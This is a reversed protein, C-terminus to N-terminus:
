FFIMSQLKWHLKGRKRVMYFDTTTRLFLDTSSLFADSFIWMFNNNMIPNNNNVLVLVMFFTGNSSILHFLLEFYFLIYFLLSIKNWLTALAANRIKM